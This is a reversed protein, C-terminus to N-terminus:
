VLWYKRWGKPGTLNYISHLNSKQKCNDRRDALKLTLSTFSFGISESFTQMATSNLSLTLTPRIEFCSNYYFFFESSSASTQLVCAIWAFRMKAAEKTKPKVSVVSWTSQSILVFSRETESSQFCCDPSSVVCSFPLIRMKIAKNQALVSM